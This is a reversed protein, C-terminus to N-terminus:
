GNDVPQKGYRDRNGDDGASGADVKVKAAKRYARV